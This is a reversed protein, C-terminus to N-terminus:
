PLVGRLRGLAAAAQTQGPRLSELELLLAEARRGDTEELALALRLLPEYAPAFEPSIRLVGLLPERVQALMTVPDPHPRIGQGAELFAARALWVRGLQEEFAADGSTGIIERPTLSSAGVFALLRGSPLSGGRYALHPATYAVRPHDDTNPDVEGAFRALSAPGAVFAALLAMEDAVGLAPASLAANARERRERLRDIDFPRGDETAVLGIVPTELSYTALIASGHPFAELFSRTISALSDLDLQHLPLWQCFVGQESLRDRVARFHEVTYLAASGSRAPHFNDSVIVDYRKGSTRIYRRADAALLSLGPLAEGPFLRERFVGTARLVEPVLEVADVALSADRAAYAATASTGVGLFLVREPAPHLLLPLLAQRADAYLTATSGEQQRNNIHLTAVGAADEVVSVTASVGEEHSLLRGGPPVTVQVAGSLAIASAVLLSAVVLAPLRPSRPLALALYGAPVLLLAAFVGVAPLLLVGFLLPAAAAGLTNLGIARGLGMGSAIAREALHAFLAGMGLTPMLFVAAALISEALMGSPAAAGPLADLWANIDVCAFLVWAAAIGSIAMYLLLFPQLPVRGRGAAVLRPYLAAGIAAGSLYVALILAFTYVTNETVQSLGRIVLVELGIGLLGTAFLLVGLGPSRPAHPATPPTQGRAPLLAPALLACAVNMAACVAATGALGLNPMLWFACGLVGLVAGATNAAYLVPLPTGTRSGEHALAREMAPLTAGMCATAPLLAAFTGCFAVGWQWVPGPSEGAVNLMLNALPQLLLALAIAWAGILLECYAYARAPSGSAEIRPALFLAGVALGGFFGGVVALLSSTEAGLWLAAQRTWVLQYALAAAGSAIMLLNAAIM